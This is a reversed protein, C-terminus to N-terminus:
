AIRVRFNRCVCVRNAGADVNVNVFVQFWAHIDCEKCVEMVSM